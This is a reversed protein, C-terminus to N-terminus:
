PILVGTEAESKAMHSHPLVDAKKPGHHGLKYFPPLFVEREGLVGSLGSPSVIYCIVPM